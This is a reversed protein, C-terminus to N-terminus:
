KWKTWGIDSVKVVKGGKNKEIKEFYERPFLKEFQRVAEWLKSADMACIRLEQQLISYKYLKINEETAM